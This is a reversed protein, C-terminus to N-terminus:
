RVPITVGKTLAPSLGIPCSVETNPNDLRPQVCLLVSCPKCLCNFRARGFIPGSRPSQYDDMYVGKHPSVVTWSYIGLSQCDVVSVGKPVSDDMHFMCEQLSVTSWYYFRCYSLVFLYMIHFMQEWEQINAPTQNNLNKQNMKTKTQKGSRTKDILITIRRNRWKM